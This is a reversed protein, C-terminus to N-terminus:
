GSSGARPSPRRRLPQPRLRRRGAGPRALVAAARRGTAPAPTGRRRARRQDRRRGGRRRGARVRRRLRGAARPQLRLARRRARAPRRRGARGSRVAIGGLDILNLVNTYVLEASLNFALVDFARPRCTTRWRSCRSAPRAAHGRGHRGVARLHARRRRRVPREAARLPDAPGPQAVRDRLHRPLHPALGRGRAPPPRRARGARGRRLPGAQEGRDLLLEVREWLSDM